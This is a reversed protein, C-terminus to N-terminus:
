NSKKNKRKEINRELFRSPTIKLKNTGFHDDLALHMTEMAYRVHTMSHYSGGSKEHIMMLIDKAEDYSKFSGTSLIELWFLYSKRKRYKKIQDSIIKSRSTELTNFDLETEVKSMISSPIIYNGDYPHSSMYVLQLVNIFRNNMQETTLFGSDDKIPKIM